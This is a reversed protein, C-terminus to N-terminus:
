PQRAYRDPRWLKPGDKRSHVRVLWQLGALPTEATVMCYMPKGNVGARLTVNWDGDERKSVTIGRLTAGTLMAFEHADFLMRVQLNMQEGMDM